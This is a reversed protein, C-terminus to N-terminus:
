SLSDWGARPGLAVVAEPFDKKLIDAEPKELHRGIGTMTLQRARFSAFIKTLDAMVVAQYGDIHPLGPKWYNPNREARFDVGPTYSKFKFPGTGVLFKPDKRDVQEAIGAKMMVAHAGALLTLMVASPEKLSLVLTFDDTCSAGDFVDEMITVFLNTARKPDALKDLSYKADACTFDSGDHFKVGKRLAFTIRKGDTIEWREALDGVIKENDYVDFTM